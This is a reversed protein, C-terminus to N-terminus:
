QFLNAPPGMFVLQQLVLGSVVDLGNSGECKEQYEVPCIKSLPCITQLNCTM